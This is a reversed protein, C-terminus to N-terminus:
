SWAHFRECETVGRADIALSIVRGRRGCAVAEPLGVYGLGNTSVARVQSM